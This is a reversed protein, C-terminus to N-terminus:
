AEATCRTGQHFKMQWQGDQRVWISSRNSGHTDFEGRTRSPIRYTVLVADESLAEAKLDVVQYGTGPEAALDDLVTDKDHRRGSAGFEIFDDALLVSLKEPVSRVQPSAVLEELRQFELTLSEM